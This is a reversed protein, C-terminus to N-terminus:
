VMPLGALEAVFSRNWTPRILIEDVFVRARRHRNCSRIFQLPATREATVRPGLSSSISGL